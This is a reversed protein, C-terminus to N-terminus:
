GRFDPQHLRNEVAGPIGRDRNVIGQTQLLDDIGLM